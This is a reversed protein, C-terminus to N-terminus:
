GRQSVCGLRAAGHPFAPLSRLCVPVVRAPLAPTRRGGAAPAQVRTPAAPAAPSHVGRCGPARGGAALATLMAPLHGLLEAGVGRGGRGRVAGGWWGWGRVMQPGYYGPLYVECIQVLCWFAEQPTPCPVPRLTRGGGVWSGSLPHCPPSVACRRGSPFLTQLTPHPLHAQPNRPDSPDPTMTM